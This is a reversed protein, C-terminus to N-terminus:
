RQSKDKIKGKKIFDTIQCIVPISCRHFYDMLVVHAGKDQEVYCTTEPYKLSTFIPPDGYLEIIEEKSLAQFGRIAHTVEKEEGLRVIVGKEIDWVANNLCVGLNRDYDFLIIEKPYGHESLDSLYSSVALKTMETINYKVFTNDVDFGIVDYDTMLSPCSTKFFSGKLLTPVTDNSPTVNIPM